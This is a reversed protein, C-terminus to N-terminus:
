FNPTIAHSKLMISNIVVTTKNQTGKQKLKKFTLCMFHMFHWRVFYTM